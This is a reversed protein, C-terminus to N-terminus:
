MNFLGETYASDVTLTVSVCRSRSDDLIRGIKLVSGSRLNVAIDVAGEYIADSPLVFCSYQNGGADRAGFEVRPISTGPPFWHAWVKAGGASDNYRVNMTAQMLGGNISVYGPLSEGSLAQPSFVGSVLFAVPLLKKIKM